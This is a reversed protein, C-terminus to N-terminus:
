LFEGLGKQNKEPAIADLAKDIRAESFDHEGILFDSVQKRDIPKWELAYDDTTPMHKFTDLVEKWDGEFEVSEFLTKATKHEKVLALGKKPGIGKVGGPAYDSGILVALWILQERNLGLKDLNEKLDILMPEVKTYAFKGPLKRRGEVSLNQVVFTAGYLLSDYDQSAVAYADGKGVMYAAQAEGESPAQVWPIGLYTLLKKAEDVMDSTLRSTRSAYKRMAEADESALAAEYMKAAAKKAEARKALEKSKLAPVKGDFVFALKLGKQMMNTVRSFLGILHSTVQGKHNTFLNGDRDRISSLFQYLMNYGDVVIKKGALEEAKIPHRVLIDKFNVGM